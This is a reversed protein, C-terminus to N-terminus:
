IQCSANSLNVDETQAVSTASSNLHVSGHTAGVVSGVVVSVVVVGLIVGVGGAPSIGSRARM